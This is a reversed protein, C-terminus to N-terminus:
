LWLILWKLIPLLNLILKKNIQTEMFKKHAFICIQERPPTFQELKQCEKLNQQTKFCIQQTQLVQAFLKVRYYIFLVKTPM